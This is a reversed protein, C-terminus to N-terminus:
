MSNISDTGAELLTIINEIEQEVPFYCSQFAKTAGCNFLSFQEDINKFLKVELGGEAAYSVSADQKKQDRWDLALKELNRLQKVFKQVEWEYIRCADSVAVPEAGSRPWGTGVSVQLYGVRLLPNESDSVLVAEVRLISEAESGATSLESAHFRKEGVKKKETVILGGDQELRSILARLSDQLEAVSDVTSATQKSSASDSTSNEVQETKRSCSQLILLTWIILIVLLLKMLKNSGTM